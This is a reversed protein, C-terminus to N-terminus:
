LSFLKKKELVELSVSAWGDEVIDPLFKKGKPLSAAKCGGHLGEM